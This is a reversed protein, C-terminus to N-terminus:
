NFDYLVEWPDDREGPTYVDVSKRGPSMGVPLNLQGSNIAERVDEWAAESATDEDTGRTRRKFYLVVETEYKMQGELGLDSLIDNVEDCLNHDEAAELAAAIVREKFEVLAQEQTHAYTRWEALTRPGDEATNPTAELELKKSM